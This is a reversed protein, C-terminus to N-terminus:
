SESLYSQPSVHPNSQPLLLGPSNEEWAELQRILEGCKGEGQGKAESVKGNREM